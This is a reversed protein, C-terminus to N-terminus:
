GGGRRRDGAPLQDAERAAKRGARHRGPHLRRRALGLPADKGSTSVRRQIGASMGGGGIVVDGRPSWAFASTGPVRPGQVLTRKGLDLFMLWGANDGREPHQIFAATRGDPAIRLNNLWGTSEHLVTGIPYELRARDGARRLVALERGDPSWDAGEVSELMDRPAGGSAPVRALRGSSEFGTLPHWGLSIALDGTRSVALLDASPLGLSKSDPSEPRTTFIEVPNGDWAAGYISRNRRRSRLAGHRIAGSRFTLRQFVPQAPAFLGLSRAALLALGAGVM